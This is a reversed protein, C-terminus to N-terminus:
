SITLLVPKEMLFQQMPPYIQKVQQPDFTPRFEPILLKKIKKNLMHNQKEESQKKEHLFKVNIIYVTIKM